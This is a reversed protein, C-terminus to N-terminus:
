LEAFPPEGWLEQGARALGLALYAGGFFLICWSLWTTQHTVVSAVFLVGLGAAMGLAVMVSGRGHTMWLIGDLVVGIAGATFDLAVLWRPVDSTLGVVGLCLLAFAFCLGLVRVV